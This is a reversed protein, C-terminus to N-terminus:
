VHKVKQYGEPDVVEDGPETHTRPHKWNGFSLGVLLAGTALCLGSIVPVAMSWASAGDAAESVEGVSMMGVAAMVLGIVFLLIGIPLTAKM